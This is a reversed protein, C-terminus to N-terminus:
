QRYLEKHTGFIVFYAVIEEGFDVERYIARWNSNINISRYGEYENHLTHNNLYPDTPNKAFLLLKKILQKRIRSDVKKLKDYFVRDYVINM